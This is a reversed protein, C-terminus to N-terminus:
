GEFSVSDKNLWPLIRKQGESFWKPFGSGKYHFGYLVRISGKYFECLLRISGQQYGKVRM